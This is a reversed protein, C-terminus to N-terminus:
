KKIWIEILEKNKVIFWGGGALILIIGAVIPIFSFDTRKTGLVQVQDEKSSEASKVKLQAFQSAPKSYTSIKVSNISKQPPANSITNKSSSSNATPLSVKPTPTKTPSKIEQSSTKPQTPTKTPTPSKTPTPTKTPTASPPFFVSSSNNSTNKSASAFLVWEQGGDSKRGATQSTEPANIGGQDGYSTQDVISEDSTLVLKILDGANNLKNSWDFAAFGSPALSGSLDLKNNATLDRIRYLSLDVTDAGSNYIEIWDSSDASSFENIIPSAFAPITFLVFLVCFAFLAFAQKRM